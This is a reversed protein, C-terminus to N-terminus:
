YGADKSGKGSGGEAAALLSDLLASAGFRFTKPSAWDPGMIREALALYGAATAADRIGGAAKFGVPRGADAIAHLLLAAAPLTAAPKTKGTSTKLFDAGAAIADRAAWSLLDPDPFQGSELIVKMTIKDGCAERCAHMVGKPLTRAGDIFARYPFVMDIEDAGDAVAAATEEAVSAATGEGGPFNVVTAIRVGSGKLAKRATRVFRPWVCVAAVPGAPTVARRCLAQITGDTDADELSTLDLLGIARRAAKKTLTTATAAEDVAQQLEPPLNM